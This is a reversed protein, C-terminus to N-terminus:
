ALIYDVAKQAAASAGVILRKDNKLARLWSQIYAASNKLTKGTEIGTYNVLAAAGIEAVLEEKSYDDNGFHATTKLRNLRSKHGTSHVCEHLTTSYYEATDTFQEMLPLVICDRLPSYFAENGLQHQITLGERATYNNIIAEAETIPEHEVPAPTDITIGDIQDVHFVNYYRLMPVIKEKLEGTTPDTESLKVQKWFVIMSAKEGKRIKGGRKAMENFTFYAGPKGLIMQNLLSYPKGTTGSYAGGQIGTWPKRWPIIGSELQRIIRDTVVSYVDFSM